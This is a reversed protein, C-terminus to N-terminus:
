ILPSNQEIGLYELWDDTWFCRRLRVTPLTNSGAKLAPAAEIIWGLEAARRLYTNGTKHDIGFESSTARLGRVNGNQECYFVTFDRIKKFRGAVDLAGMERKWAEAFPDHDFGDFGVVYDVYGPYDGLL